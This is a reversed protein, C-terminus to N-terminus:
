YYSKSEVRVKGLGFRCSALRSFLIPNAAIWLIGNFTNLNASMILLNIHIAYAYDIYRRLISFIVSMLESM